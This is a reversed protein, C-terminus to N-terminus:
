SSNSKLATLFSFIDEKMGHSINSTNTLFYIDQSQGCKIEIVLDVLAGPRLRFYTKKIKDVIHDKPLQYCECDNVFKSEDCLFLHDGILVQKTPKDITKLRTLKHKHIQFFGSLSYIVNQNDEKYKYSSIQDVNCQTDIANVPYLKM